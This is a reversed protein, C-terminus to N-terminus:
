QGHLLSAIYNVFVYRPSQVKLLMALYIDM